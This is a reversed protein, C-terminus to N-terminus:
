LSAKLMLGYHHAGASFEKELELGAKQALELVAEKKVVDDKVPGM